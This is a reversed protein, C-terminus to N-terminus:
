KFQTRLEGWALYVGGNEIKHSKLLDYDQFAIVNSAMPTKFKESKLYHAFNADLLTGPNLYDMVLIHSYSQERAQDSDMYQLMCNVDDFIFVKGKETVLEAGFKPDMLTMKCHHCADKGLQIDRPESSCAMCLALLTTFILLRKM